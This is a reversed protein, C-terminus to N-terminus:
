KRPSVNEFRALDITEIGLSRYQKIMLAMTADNITIIADEIVYVKYGRNIGGRATNFVCAAADAGAIYLTNVEKSILYKEFDKSSFSDGVSKSFINGDNVVRLNGDLEAGNTGKRYKGRSLIFILPNGGYVNKIYIIEMGNQGALAVAQNVKEVFGATDGYMATNGTTDNQVDIVLLASKPDGYTPIVTGKTPGSIHSAAIFLTIIVIGAVILVVMKTGRKVGTQM